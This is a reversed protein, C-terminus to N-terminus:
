PAKIPFNEFRVRGSRWELISTEFAMSKAIVQSSALCAARIGLATLQRRRIQGDNGLSPEVTEYPVFLGTTM